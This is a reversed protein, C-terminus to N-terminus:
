SSLNKLEEELELIKIKDREKEFIKEFEAQLLSHLSVGDHAYIWKSDTWDYRKPGSMPSSLWIQQNPSQKNIVYTGVSSSIRTTLVGMAYNVDYDPPANNLFDPLQDLYDYLHELTEDAVHDYSGNGSVPGSFARYQPYLVRLANPRLIRALM